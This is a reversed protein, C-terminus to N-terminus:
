RRRAAVALGLLGVGLLAATTPERTVQLETTVPITVDPPTAFPSPRAASTSCHPYRDLELPAGSM